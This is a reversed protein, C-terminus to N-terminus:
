PVVPMVANEPTLHCNERYAKDAKELSIFATLKHFSSNGHSMKPPKTAGSQFNLQKEKKDWFKNERNDSIEKNFILNWERASM